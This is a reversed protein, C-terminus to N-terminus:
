EAAILRAAPLLNRDALYGNHDVGIGAAVAAAVIGEDWVIAKRDDGGILM